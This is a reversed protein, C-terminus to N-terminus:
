PSFQQEVCRFFFGLLLVGPKSPGQYSGWFHAM